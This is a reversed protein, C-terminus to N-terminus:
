NIKEEAKRAIEILEQFDANEGGMTVVEAVDWKVFCVTYFNGMFGDKDITTVNYALSFEGILPNNLQEISVVRKDPKEYISGIRYSEEAADFSFTINIGSNVINYKRVRNYINKGDESSFHVYYGEHFGSDIDLQTVNEEYEPTKDVVVWDDSPLDELDLSLDSTAKLAMSSLGCIRSEHPRDAENGCDNIDVCTRNQVGSFTDVRECETWETCNWESVCASDFSQGSLFMGTPQEQVCGSIFVASLTILVLLEKM